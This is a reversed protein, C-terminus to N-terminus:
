YDHPLYPDDDCINATQYLGKNSASGQSEYAKASQISLGQRGRLNRWRLETRDSSGGQLRLTTLEFRVPPESIM